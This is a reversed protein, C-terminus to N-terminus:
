GSKVDWLVGSKGVEVVWGKMEGDGWRLFFTLVFRCAVHNCCVGSNANAMKEYAMSAARRTDPFRNVYEGLPVYSVQVQRGAYWRSKMDNAAKQCSNVDEFMLYVDGSSNKDVFCHLM